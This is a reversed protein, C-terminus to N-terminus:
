CDNKTKKRSKGREDILAMIEEDEEKVQAIKTRRCWFTKRTWSKKMSSSSNSRRRSRNSRRTRWRAGQKKQLNTKARSGHQQQPILNRCSKGRLNVIASQSDTLKKTNWKKMRRVKSARRHQTKAGNKSYRRPTQRKHHQSAEMIVVWTYWTMQKQMRVQLMLWQKLWDGRRNSEKLTHPGVSLREIGIGPCLEANFFGGVIQM